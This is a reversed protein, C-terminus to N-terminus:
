WMANNDLLASLFDIVLYVEASRQYHDIEVPIQFAKGLFAISSSIVHWMLFSFCANSIESAALRVDVDKIPTKYELLSLLKSLFLHNESLMRRLGKLTLSHIHVCGTEERWSIM